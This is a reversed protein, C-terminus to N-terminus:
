LLIRNRSNALYGCTLLTIFASIPLYLPFDYMSIIIVTGIIYRENEKTTMVLTFFAAILIAGVLGMEFFIQLLDNHAYMPMSHVNYYGWLTFNGFGNGFLTSNEFIGKWIVYRDYITELRYGSVLVLIIAIWILISITKTRKWCWVSFVLVATLIAGRSGNLVLSPILCPILFYLKYVCLGVLVIVSLEALTNINIFLGGKFGALVLVSSVGIGLAAGIFVKKLDNLYYGIVFIEALIIFKFYEYYSQYGYARNLTIAAFVLFLSGVIIILNLQISRLLCIICLPFIVAGLCWRPSTAAGTIFPVYLVTFLFALQAEVKRQNFGLAM